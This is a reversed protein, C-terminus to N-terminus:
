RRRRLRDFFSGRANGAEDRSHGGCWQGAPVSAKVQQVHRGCGAWTTKACVKCKVPQCM